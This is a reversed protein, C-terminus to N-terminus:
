AKEQLRRILATTSYGAKLTVRAVRGAHRAGAIQHRGYDAGKVLVDPKLKALLAEPTDEAFPVVADVCSFAALLAARDRLRNVPRGPGKGLRRASADSNVGVILVDGMSRARELLQVHGAHLIDFVGNTFVVTKGQWGWLQRLTALRRVTKIKARSSAM